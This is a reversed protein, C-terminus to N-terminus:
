HRFKELAKLIDMQPGTNGCIYHDVLNLALCIHKADEERFAFGIIRGDDERGIIYSHPDNPNKAYKYQGPTFTVQYQLTM